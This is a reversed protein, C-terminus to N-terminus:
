RASPERVLEWMPLDYAPLSVEHIIDFGFREYVKAADGLSTETYVPLRSRESEDLLAEILRRGHGQGQLHMAVGLVQLYIFPRGHMNKKRAAEVPRLERGATMMDLGLARGLRIAKLGTFFSGSRLQRWVTMNSYDGPVWAAVGELRESTGLVKGYSICYEISARYIASVVQDMESSTEGGSLAMWFPDRRFADALVVGVRPVDTRTVQYLGSSSELLTEIELGRVRRGLTNSILPM